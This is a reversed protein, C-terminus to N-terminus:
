LLEVMRERSRWKRLGLGSPTQMFFIYSSFAAGKFSWGGKQPKLSMKAIKNEVCEPLSPKRGRNADIEIRGTVKDKPTM